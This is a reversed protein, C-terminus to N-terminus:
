KKDCFCYNVLRTDKICKAQDGYASLRVPDRDLILKSNSVKFNSEFWAEGPQLVVVSTFFKVHENIFIKKFFVVRKLKFVRCQKRIKETLSNIRNLTLETAASFSVGNTEKKFQSENITEKKFCSCLSDSILASSCSRNAPINEFLSIGREHRVLKSNRSFQKRNEEELLFKKDFNHKNMFLYHRLTQYMDFFSVLKHKNNYLNKSFKTNELKKPPKISLFPMFKELKGIETSYSYYKLRNGHDTFLLLMTNDLFGSTSLIELTRRMEFDFQRPIALYGHTYETLFNLSFYRSNGKEANTVFEEIQDLWHRYTPENHHCKDPGSRMSYYKLWYPRGYISTPWFRFGKKLYNFIACEPLDEQFMTLHGLSEYDYWLFPLSDHFTSDLQRYTDIEGTLNYGSYTQTEEVIGTLMALLNPYTNSGVSHFREFIVNNGLDNKLFDYTLPFIRRFHNASVSDIGIVLVNTKEEDKVPENKARHTDSSIIHNEYFKSKKEEDNINMKFQHNYERFLLRNEALKSMDKPYVNILYDFFVVQSKDHKCYIYYYGFEDNIEVTYFPKKSETFEYIKESMDVGFDEESKNIPKNFQQAFCKFRDATEDLKLTLKLLSVDILIQYIENKKKQIVDFKLLNKLSNTKFMKKLTENRDCSDFISSLATYDENLYYMSVNNRYDLVPMNCQNSSSSEAHHVFHENADNERMYNFKIIDQSSLGEDDPLYYDVFNNIIYKCQRIRILVSSNTIFLLNISYLTLVFGLLLIVLLRKKNYRRSLFGPM